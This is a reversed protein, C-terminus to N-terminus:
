LNTIEHILIEDCVVTCFIRGKYYREIGFLSDQPCAVKRVVCRNNQMKCRGCKDHEQQGQGVLAVTRVHKSMGNM